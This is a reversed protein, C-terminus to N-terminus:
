CCLIESTPHLCSEWLQSYWTHINEKTFILNGKATESITHFHCRRKFPTCGFAASCLLCKTLVTFSNMIRNKKIESMIHTFFWVFHHCRKGVFFVCRQAGTSPRLPACAAIFQLCSQYSYDSSFDIM